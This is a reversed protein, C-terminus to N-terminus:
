DIPFHGRCRYLKGFADQARIEFTGETIAESEEVPFVASIEHYDKDLQLPKFHESPLRTQDILLALETITTPRGEHAFALKALYHSPSYPSIIVVESDSRQIQYRLYKVTIRVRIRNALIPFLDFLKLFVSVLIGWM